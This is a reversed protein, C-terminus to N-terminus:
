LLSPSGCLSVYFTTTSCHEVWAVRRVDIWLSSPFTRQLLQTGAFSGQRHASVQLSANLMVFQMFIIIMLSLFKRVIYLWVNISRPPRLLLDWFIKRTYCLDAYHLPRDLKPMWKCGFYSVYIRSPLGGRAIAIKFRDDRSRRFTFTFISVQHYSAWASPNPKQCVSRRESLDFIM